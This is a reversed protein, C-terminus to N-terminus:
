RSSTATDRYDGPSLGTEKRFFKCFATSEAFGVLETVSRISFETQWLLDKARVLRVRQIEQLPSRGVLARFHMEFSRRSVHLRRALHDVTLEQCAHRSIYALTEQIDSNAPVGGVTSVRAVLETARVTAVKRQPPGDCMLRHLTALALYGVEERPTHITSLSPNHARATVLDDVGLVRVEDPVGLGLHECATCVGRAFNDNLTWVGLPKPLRRLLQLLKKERRVLKDDNDHGHLGITLDMRTLSHGIRALERELASSRERTATAAGKFGVFLFSRCGCQYLHNAALRCLSRSDIVVCPIRPDTWDRSVSVVPVGGSLAWDATEKDTANLLRGMALVVGDARGLWEPPTLKAEDHVTAPLRFDRISLGGVEQAYRIMGTLSRSSVEQFARGILGVIKPSHPV